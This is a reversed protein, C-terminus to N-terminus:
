RLGTLQWAAESSAERFGLAENIRLMWANEGANWTHVRLVGAAHERLARLNAIKVLTGLRHGRHEALVLTDEQWAVEPLGPHHDLCSYAAVAGTRRDLAVTTVRLMGRAALTSEVYRLRDVDWAEEDVELAGMPVDTSMRSCAAALGAALSDPAPGAWSVVDYGDAHRLVEHELGAARELGEDVELQSHREVQELVFGLDLLTAAYGDHEVAGVGTGPVLVDPAHPRVARSMSWLQVTTRGDAVLAPRAAEWLARLVVSPDAGPLVSMGGRAVETSERRPRRLLCSGVVRDGERALLLQKAEYEQQALGAALTGPSETLDLHGLLDLHAARWLEVCAVIDPSPDAGTPVPPVDTVSLPAVVPTTM